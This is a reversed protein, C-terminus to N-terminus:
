IKIGYFIILYLLTHIDDMHGIVKMRNRYYKTFCFYGKQWKESSLWLAKKVLRQNDDFLIVFRINEFIVITGKSLKKYENETM